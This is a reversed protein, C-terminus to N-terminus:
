IIRLHDSQWMRINNKIESPHVEGGSTPLMSYTLRPESRCLPPHKLALILGGTTITVTRFLVTCEIIVKLRPLSTLSVLM